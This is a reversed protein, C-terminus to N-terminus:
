RPPCPGARTSYDDSKAEGGEVGEVHTVLRERERRYEILRPYDYAPNAFRLRGPASEIMLFSVAAPIGDPAPHYRWGDADRSIRMMEHAAPSGDHNVEVYEGEIAGDAGPGYREAITAGDERSGSFCGGLVALLPARAADLPSARPAARAPAPPAISRRPEREPLPDLGAGSRPEPVVPPPAPQVTVIVLWAVVALASGGIVIRKTGPAM